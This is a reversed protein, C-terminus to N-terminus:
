GFCLRMQLTDRSEAAHVRDVVQGWWVHDFGRQDQEAWVAKLLPITSDFMHYRTMDDWLACYRLIKRRTSEDKLECGAFFLPLLAQKAVLNDERCAFIHDATIRARLAARAAVQSGPEWQFVRYLYLLLGNRWAESCHMTDLDQHMSDEDQFSTPPSVHQWSELLNELDSIITDDFKVYRMSLSKKKEAGLRVLRMVVEVLQLPCGCLRFYDWDKESCNSVVAEFYSYPFVCDERSLLSTIADWWILLGVQVVARRSQTWNKIGGYAELLAFAGTLHIQWNGLTSQTEDLSFLIIITDLMHYVDTNNYITNIAERLLKLSTQHHQEMGQSKVHHGALAMVAHLLFLPETKSGEHYQFPNIQLESSLPIKCFEQNYKVLIPEFRHSVSNYLISSPTLTLHDHHKNYALGRDTEDFPQAIDSIEAIDESSPQSNSSTRTQYVDAAFATQVELTTGVTSRIPRRPELDPSAPYESIFEYQQTANGTVQRNRRTMLKKAPKRSLSFGPKWLLQDRPM